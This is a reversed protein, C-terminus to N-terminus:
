EDLPGYIKAGPVSGNSQSTMMSHGNDISSEVPGGKAPSASPQTDYDKGSIFSQGGDYFSVGNSM